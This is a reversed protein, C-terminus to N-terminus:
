DLYPMYEWEGFVAFYAYKTDGRAPTEQWRQWKESWKLKMVKGNPNDRIETPLTNFYRPYPFICEAERIYVINKEIKFVTYPDKCIDIYYRGTHQRVYLKDGVKPMYKEAM